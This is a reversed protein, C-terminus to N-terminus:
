TSSSVAPRGTRTSPQTGADTSRGAGPGVQAGARATDPLVGARATDPLVGARATDPLVVTRAAPPVLVVPVRLTRLPLVAVDATAAVALDGARQARAVADGPRGDVPDALAPRHAAAALRQRTTRHRQAAVPPRWGPAAPAGRATLLRVDCGVASAHRATLDVAADSAAALAADALVLLRRPRTLVAGPGVLVVPVPSRPVCGGLVHGAALPDTHRGCGLVLWGGGDAAALLLGTAVAGSAVDGTLVTTSVPPCRGPLRELEEALAAPLSASPPSAPSPPAPHAPDHPPDVAVVHVAGGAASAELLAWRLARRSAGSGSWGVTTREPPPDGRRTGDENRHGNM